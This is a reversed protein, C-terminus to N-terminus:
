SRTPPTRDHATDLAFRTLEQALRAPDELGPLHAVGTVTVLAAGPIRAALTHARAVVHPVDLDGIVVLTPVDLECLRNWSDTPWVADGVDGAELARLNMDLFLSRPAGGVRGAPAEPGDLWLRAELDNVLGFDESEEAADIATTLTAIRALETPDPDPAGSVATGVLVLGVVRDPNALTADIAIRGGQSNGVLVATDVNCADLVAFLDSSHSHTSPAWTTEGFGRRDFSIFRLKALSPELASAVATWSRRDAVGAHLLVVPLGKGVDTVALTATGVDVFREM